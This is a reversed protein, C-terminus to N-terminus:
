VDAKAVSEFPAHMSLMSVGCDITDVDLNAVYQAVTGGGGQDVKGLEGTQYLVGGKNFLDRVKYVLEASADSSGSKGRSGTFKTITLGENIKGSNRKETVEKYNPDVAVNVDASLCTSNSLVKRKPVSYMDCLDEIINELYRAKIGTNGMSGIEEKDAFVVLATKKPIASDVLGKLSTFACVRDDHGYAGIMSTDFGIDRALIAPVLELEASVFDEEIMGYKKFLINMVNLKVKESASDDKFPISGVLVNLGEGTIAELMKKNMQEVALHPLLDTIVFVPENPELGISIEVKKGSGTMVVGCMALPLSTWQYKKIGGYYHTKLMAMNEDEYLPNQKLDIRPSDIHSIIMNIGALLDMEGIVGAVVAKDRQVFYFKEGKEYPTRYIDLEKFGNRKLIEVIEAACMRETMSANLFRKYERSLDAMQEKEEDTMVDYANVSKKMLQEQLKQGVTKEM